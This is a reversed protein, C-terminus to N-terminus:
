HSPRATQEHEDSAAVLGAARRAEVRTRFDHIRVIQGARLTFVLFVEGGATFVIELNEHPESM